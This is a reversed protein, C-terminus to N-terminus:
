APVNKERRQEGSFTMTNEINFNAMSSRVFAGLCLSM